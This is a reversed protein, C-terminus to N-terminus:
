RDAEKKAAPPPPVASVDRLSRIYAILQLIKQEELDPYPPMRDKDEYGSLIMKQPERISDRLYNEDATVFRGDALRRQTGYMGTLPPGAESGSAHCSSCNLQTFLKAGQEAMTEIRQTTHMGWQNDRLWKEYDEPTLVTVYGGMEAHKTGCYEACFLHYTGTKTAEFWMTTYRGPIVDMKLRFAPVFFSHIVDQSIMTLKIPRGVPIHLTNNERQGTPHQLHWMWQKGIVYIELTDESPAPKQIEVFLKASWGFVFLAMFLPIVTWTIELPTNHGPPRRRDAKSGARYKAVFYIIAAFVGISFFITLATLLYYIYDIEQAVKSAQDPFIPFSKM